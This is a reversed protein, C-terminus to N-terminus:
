VPDHAADRRWPVAAAQGLQCPQQRFVIIRPVLRYVLALEGGRWDPALALHLHKWVSFRGSSAINNAAGFLQGLLLPVMLLCGHRMVTLPLRM